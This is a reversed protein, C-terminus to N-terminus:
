RIGERDFAHVKVERSLRVETNKGKEVEMGSVTDQVVVRKRGRRVASEDIVEDKGPGGVVTIKIGRNAQGKLHFADEGELGHLIIEETDKNDFIRSYLQVKKSPDDEDVQVVTVSTKEDNVRVVEFRENGDSGPVTVKLSRLRYLRHAAEPLQDRRNKLKAITEAGVLRFVTDPFLRVAEEIVKDTLAAQMELATRQWDEATLENLAREDIFNAQFVLGEIDRFDMKFTRFKRIFFRRSAIWPIVGDNFKFFVQDRDKPIPKYLTRDEEQYEAWEWQNEHRDWDGVWVDFLRARAFAHQDPLHTGHKYRRRLMKQSNVFDVAEGFTPKHDEENKYKHEFLVAKGRFKEAHEGLSVDNNPVFFLRPKTHFVGVAESLPPLIFPGYPNIASSQDRITNVIFPLQLMKPLVGDPTKDITRLAYQAGKENELTLSTTQFGGGLKTVELGGSIKDPRFIPAPVPADWVARYHKGFFFTHLKSRRYHRGAKILVTDPSQLSPVREQYSAPVQGTYLATEQFFNRTSCGPLMGMVIGLVLLKWKM